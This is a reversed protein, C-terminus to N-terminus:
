VFLKPKSHMSQISPRVTVCDPFSTFRLRARSPLLRGLFLWGFSMSDILPPAPIAQGRGGSLVESGHCSMLKISKRHRLFGMKAGDILDM